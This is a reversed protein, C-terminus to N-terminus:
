ERDLETKWEYLLSLAEFPSLRDVDLNRLEEAIGEPFASFITSQRDGSPNATPRVAARDGQEHQALVEQARALVTKPLGALRAVEIGYSRDSTGSEIRRLFVLKDGSQKASVHLNFIGGLAEPLATLEHYHTAFLTKARVTERIHDAVAWAIALGDYTSTGRGIEDLLILSRGTATNLIQATEIMEVMFTSRGLAVNDSAGIRTFIRDVLPLVAKRVPVFSGVQAMVAILATQRLYTSKGGM